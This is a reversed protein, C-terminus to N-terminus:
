IQPTAVKFKAYINGFYFPDVEDAQLAFLIDGTRPFRNAVAPRKYLYQSIREALNFLDRWGDDKDGKYVGITFLVTAAREQYNISEVAQISITVNPYFTDSEFHDLPMLQKYITVKKDPQNEAILKFDKLEEGVEAALSEILFIPTM